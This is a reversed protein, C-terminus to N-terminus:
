FGSNHLLARLVGCMKGFKDAPGLNIQRRVVERLDFRNKGDAPGM